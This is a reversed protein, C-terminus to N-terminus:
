YVGSLSISSQVAATPSQPQQNGAGYQGAVVPTQTSQYNTTSTVSIQQFWMDAIILTAGNQASRAFDLHTCSCSTYSLEPTVIDFLPLSSNSGPLALSVGQPTGGAIAFVTNLFAQRTSTPGGCALKLRVDFPLTVKDYSQFAGQEQPYNSIPWDQKYAFDVMSATVPVINPLGLASLGPLSGLAGFGGLAGTVVASAVTAPMIVPFGQYYIGWQPAFLTGLVLDEADAVLLEIQTGTVM